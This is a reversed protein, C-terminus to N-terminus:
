RLADCENKDNCIRISSKLMQLAAEKKASSIPYSSLTYSFLYFPSSGTDLYLQVLGSQSKKCEFTQTWTRLTTSTQTLVKLGSTVCGSHMLSNEIRRNVTEIQKQASLDKEKPFSFKVLGEPKKNQSDKVYASTIQDKDKKVESLKWEPSIQITQTDAAYAMGNFLAATCVISTLRKM